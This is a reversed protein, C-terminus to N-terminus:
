QGVGTGASIGYQDTFTQDFATVWTSRNGIQDGCAGM